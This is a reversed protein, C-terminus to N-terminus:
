YSQTGHIRTFARVGSVVSHRHQNSSNIMVCHSCTCVRSVDLVGIVLDLMGGKLVTHHILGLRLGLSTERSDRAGGLSVGDRFSGAKEM